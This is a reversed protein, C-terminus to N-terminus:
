QEVQCGLCWKEDLELDFVRPEPLERSLKNKAQVAGVLHQAPLCLWAGSRAGSIGDDDFFSFFFPM